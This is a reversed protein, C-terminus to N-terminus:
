FVFYYTLGALLIIQAVFSAVILMKMRDTM